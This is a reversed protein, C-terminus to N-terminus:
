GTGATAGKDTLDEAGMKASSTPLTVLYSCLRDLLPSVLPGPVTPTVDSFVAKPILNQSLSLKDWNHCLAASPGTNAQYPISVSVLM